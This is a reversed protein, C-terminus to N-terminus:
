TPADHQMRQQYVPHGLVDVCEPLGVAEHLGRSLRTSQRQSVAIGALRVALNLIEEEPRRLGAEDAGRCVLDERTVIAAPKLLQGVDSDEAGHETAGRGLAMALDQAEKEKVGFEVTDQDVQALFM